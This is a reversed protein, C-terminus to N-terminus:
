GHAAGSAAGGAWLRELILSVEKLWTDHSMHSRRLWLAELDGRASDIAEQPAPSNWSTTVSQALLSALYTGQALLSALHNEIRELSRMIEPPYYSTPLPQTAPM